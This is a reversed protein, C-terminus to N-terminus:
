RAESAAHRRAALEAAREMQGAAALLFLALSRCWRSKTEGFCCSLNKNEGL